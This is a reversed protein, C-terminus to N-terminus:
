WHCSQVAVAYRSATSASEGSPYQRRPSPAGDVVANSSLAFWEFPVYRLAGVNPCGPSRVSSSLRATSKLPEFWLTVVDTVLVVACSAWNVKSDHIWVLPVFVVLCAIMPFETPPRSIAAFAEFTLSCNEFPDVVCVTVAGATTVSPRGCWTTPM